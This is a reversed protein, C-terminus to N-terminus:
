KMGHNYLPPFVHLNNTLFDCRFLWQSSCSWPPHFINLHFKSLHPTTHVAERYCVISANQSRPLSGESQMDHQFTISRSCFHGSRFFSEAGQTQTSPLTM